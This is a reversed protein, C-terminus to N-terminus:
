GLYKGKFCYELHGDDYEHIVLSLSSWYDYTYQNRWARHFCSQPEGLVSRMEEVHHIVAMKDEVDAIDEESPETFFSSRKSERAEGGCWPCHRLIASGERGDPLVLVLHFENMEEDFTIPHWTSAAAQELWDCECRHSETDMESAKPQNILTCAQGWDM